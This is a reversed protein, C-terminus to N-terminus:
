KDSKDVHKKFIKSVFVASLIGLIVMGIWSFASVGHKVENQSHPVFNSADQVKHCIRNGEDVKVNEIANMLKAFVHKVGMWLLAVVPLSMLALFVTVLPDKLLIPTLVIITQFAAFAFLCCFLFIFVKMVVIFINKHTANYLREQQIEDQSQIFDPKM